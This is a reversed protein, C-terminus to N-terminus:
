KVFKNVFRKAINVSSRRTKTIYKTTKYVYNKFGTFENFPLELLEPWSDRCIDYALEKRRRYEYPLRMMSRFIRRHNFPSLEFLSITNCYHLPAAWCGLRQEVYFLDLIMFANFGSLEALWLETDRLIRAQRPLGCRLLLKEAFLPMDERDGDRWYYSRGVEGGMGPLLVRKRDYGQLGKHMKWINGSASHGTIFLWRLMEEESANQVPLFAHNLGFRRALMSAIHMDIPEKKDAFTFFVARHLNERACALLMRSDMGATLSLQVPHHKTIIDISKKLCSIITSVCRQPDEKAALYASYKPWHRNVCWDNLDLCHNPLLRRVGKKPTLGSPFWLGSDPMNLTKILEKDWVHARNMLTPTSAVTSETTSFVAGLSGAPDLFVKEEKETLLVLIYRGGTHEYFSEVADMDISKSDQSRLVIKEAWPDKHNLPYGICWGIRQEIENEIVLVPLRLVGLIWPSKEYRNWSEPISDCNKTLIFQGIYIEPNLNLPQYYNNM